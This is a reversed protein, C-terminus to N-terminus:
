PLDGQTEVNKEKMIVARHSKDLSKEIRATIKGQM